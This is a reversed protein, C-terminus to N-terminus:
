LQSGLHVEFKTVFDAFVGFLETTTVKKPDEGFYQVAAQFEEMTNANLRFLSQIEDSAHSIFHGMVDQFNDNIGLSTKQTGFKELTNSIDQFYFFM